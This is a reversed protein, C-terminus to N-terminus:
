QSSNDGYLGIGNGLSESIRNAMHKAMCEPTVSYWGEDDIKVGQDFKSFLYYRKKYFKKLDKQIPRQTDLNTANNRKSKKDRYFTDSHYQFTKVTRKIIVVIDTNSDKITGVKVSIDEEMAKISM